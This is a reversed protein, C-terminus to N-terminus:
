TQVLVHGRPQKRLSTEKPSCGLHPSIEDDIVIDTGRTNLYEGTKEHLREAQLGLHKIVAEQSRSKRHWDPVTLQRISDVKTHRTM